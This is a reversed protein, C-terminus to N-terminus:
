WVFPILRKRQQPYAARYNNLYWDHSRIASISLNTVVWAWLIWHKSRYIASMIAICNGRSIITLWSSTSIDLHYNWQDIWAKADNEGAISPTNNLLVAFMFYIMIESFYHPCSVYEFWGGIPISYATKFKTTRLNALIVHHRHQEYQFYICGIM